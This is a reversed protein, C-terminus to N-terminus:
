YNCALGVFVFQEGLPNTVTVRVRKTDTTGAASPTVADVTSLNSPVYDVRVSRSYGSYTFVVGAQDTFNDTEAAMSNYDDVDDYTLRNEGGEAGLATGANRNAASADPCATLPTGYSKTGRGVGGEGSCLPGGGVATNEDWRRSLVEDMLAQGLAVTRERIIPDSSREIAQYFPLLLLLTFGLIVITIVLEILTFGSNRFLTNPLYKM